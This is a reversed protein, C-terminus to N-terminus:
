VTIGPRRMREEVPAVLVIGGLTLVRPAPHEPEELAVDRGLNRVRSLRAGCVVEESGGPVTRRAWGLPVTTGPVPRACTRRRARETRGARSTSCHHRTATPSVATRLRTAPSRM